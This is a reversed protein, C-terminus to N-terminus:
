TQAQRAHDNAASARRMDSPRFRGAQAPRYKIAKNHAGFIVANAVAIVHCAAGVARNLLRQGIIEIQSPRPLIEINAAARAIISTSQRPLTARPRPKVRRRQHQFCGPDFGIIDDPMQARRFIQGKLIRAKVPRYASQRHMMKGINATAKGLYTADQFRTRSQDYEGDRRRLCLSIPEIAIERFHQFGVALGQRRKGSQLRRCFETTEFHNACKGIEDALGRLIKEKVAAFEPRRKIQRLRHTLAHRTKAQQCM